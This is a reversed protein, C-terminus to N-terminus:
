ILRSVGQVVGVAGERGSVVGEGGIVSFAEEGVPDDQALYHPKDYWLWEISDRPVFQEIDITSTSELAVSAIEDEELMVYEGEGTEYGKVQEDDDVVKHTVSDVYRSMIRNGTARNITHFRIKASETTAPMMAVPCTVLSLKLYGKWFTRQAM